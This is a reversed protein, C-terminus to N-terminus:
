KTGHRQLNQPRPKWGEPASVREWRVQVYFTYYFVPNLQKTKDKNHIRVSHWEVPLICNVTGCVPGYGPGSSVRVCLFARQSLQKDLAPGFTLKFSCEANQMSIQSRICNFSMACNSLTINHVERFDVLASILNRDFKSYGRVPFLQTISTKLM